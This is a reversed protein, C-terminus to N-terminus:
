LNLWGLGAIIFPTNIQFGGPRAAPHSASIGRAAYARAERDNLNEIPLACGM